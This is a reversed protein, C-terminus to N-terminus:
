NLKPANSLCRGIEFACAGCLDLLAFAARDRDRGIAALLAERGNRAIRRALEGPAVPAFAGPYRRHLWAAGSGHRALQRCLQAVTARSRHEVVASRREKLRWGRDQLRFCLDADEGARASEDFGGVQEFAVRRVACNATQAYPRSGGELTILQSMRARAVGHRATLTPPDAVDVIWGALVGTTVGPETGLHDDILSPPPVTDADVFVLWEGTAAQAGRNRAFGPSRVGSADILGIGPTRRPSAGPRNDAVIVQDGPELRLRQLLELLGTLEEDSGAFPVVVSATPRPM